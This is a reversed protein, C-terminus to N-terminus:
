LSWPSILFIFLSLVVFFTLQRFLYFISFHGQFYALSADRALSLFLTLFAAANIFGIPLFAALWAIQSSALALASSALLRRKPWLVGNFGFFEQLLLFSFIILALVAKLSLTPQFHFFISFVALFFSSNFLNYTLFQDNFVFDMMGLIVFFLSLFVLLLAFSLLPTWFAALGIKILFFALIVLLWYSSRLARRRFSEMLYVVAFFLWFAAGALWSFDSFWLWSLVLAAGAIKFALPWPIRNKLSFILKKAM